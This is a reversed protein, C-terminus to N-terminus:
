GGSAKKLYFDILRRAAKSDWEAHGKLYGVVQGRHDILFTMPLGAVGFARYTRSRPDLFVELNELKNEKLFPLVRAAGFRDVSLAMVVFPKGKMAAQLRDLSPMEIRCPGCWTAWFNLLVVKGKFRAMDVPMGNRDLIERFPAKKTPKLLTFQGMVGAFEPPVDAAKALGIGHASLAVFVAVAWRRFRYLFSQGLAKAKGTLQAHTM